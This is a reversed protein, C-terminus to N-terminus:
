GRKNWFVLAKWTKDSKIFSKKKIDLRKLAEKVFDYDGVSIGGSIIIVDSNSLAKNVSEM